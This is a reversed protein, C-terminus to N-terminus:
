LNMWPQISYIRSTYEPCPLSQILWKRGAFDITEEYYFGTRSIPQDYPVHPALQQSDERLRSKHLYLFLPKGPSTNDYIYLDIGVPRLVETAMELILPVVFIAAVFGQLNQQRQEITDLSAEQRYIPIVALVAQPGFYDALVELVGSGAIQATDRSLAFPEFMEPITSIDLGMIAESQPVTFNIPWYEDRDSAAVFDDQSNIERIQFNPFGEDRVMSEYPGRQLATVRPIWIFGAIDNHKKLFSEVFTQFEDREVLISSAYFDRISEVEELHLEIEKKLISIRDRSKTLFETRMRQYENKRGQSFLVSSLIVGALAVFVLPLYRLNKRTLLRSILSGARSQPNEGIPSKKPIESVRSDAM